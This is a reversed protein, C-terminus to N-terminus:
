SEERKEGYNCFGDNFVDIGSEHWLFCRSKDAYWPESHKCDRCLVVPPVDAVVVHVATGHVDKAGVTESLVQGDPYITVTLPHTKPMEMGKILINM